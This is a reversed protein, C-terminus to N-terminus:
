FGNAKIYPTLKVIAEDGFHLEMGDFNETKPMEFWYEGHDPSQNSLKILQNEKVIYMRNYDSGDLPGGDSEIRVSVQGKMPLGDDGKFLSDRYYNGVKVEKVKLKRGNELSFEDGVGLINKVKTTQVSKEVGRNTKIEAKQPLFIVLYYGVSFAVILIGVILTNRLAKDM